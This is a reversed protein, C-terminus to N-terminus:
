DSFVVELVSNISSNVSSHSLYIIPSLNTKFYTNETDTTYSKGFFVKAMLRDNNFFSLSISPKDLGAQTIDEPTPNYAFLEHALLFRSISFISNITNQEVNKDVPSVVNWNDAADRIFTIPSQSTELLIKNVSNRNVKLPQKDIFWVPTRNMMTNVSNEITFILDKDFQKAYWLHTRGKKTLKNGILIMKSPMGYRLHVTLVTSPNDLGYQALDDTEEEILINKRADAMRDCFDKLNKQDAPHGWPEVMDWAIENHALVLRGKYEGTRTIEVGIIDDAVANLMSRSRYYRVPEKLLDTVQNAIALVRSESSFRVYTMTSDPTSGGVYLTDPSIDDYEMAMYYSAHALKYVSLDEPDKEVEYLIDSSDLSYFLKFIPEKDAESQIPSTINWIRGIGREFVVSSDPRILTFSKIKDLDFRILQREEIERIKREEEAKYVMFYVLIGIVIVVLLSVLSKVLKM